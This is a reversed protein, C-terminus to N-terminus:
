KRLSNIAHPSLTLNLYTRTPIYLIDTVKFVVCTVLKELIVKSKDFKIIIYKTVYKM